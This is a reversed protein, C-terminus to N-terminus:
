DTSARKMPLKSKLPEGFSIDILELEHLLKLLLLNLLDCATVIM